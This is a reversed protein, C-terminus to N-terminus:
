GKPGKLVHLVGADRMAALEEFSRGDVMEAIGEALRKITEPTLRPQGLSAWWAEFSPLYRQWFVEVGAAGAALNTVMHPGIVSWRVGPGATLALDIDKVSAVGEAALYVAERIVAAQLRNAVHGPIERNLRITVKGLGRYFAEARDVARPDTHANGYLEVLPVLHPPNFPHALVLNRPDKLGKQMESMLLGSTSTCLLTDAGLAPEIAQFLALKMEIREPVNEQVLAAGRVAEAAEAHFTLREQSADPALGLETLASWANAVYDRTRQLAGPDLDHLRVALGKALFLATWSMGIVGAGLVAVTRIEPSQSM